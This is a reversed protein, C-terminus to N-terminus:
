PWQVHSVYGAFALISALWAMTYVLYFRSYIM